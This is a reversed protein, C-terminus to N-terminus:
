HLGHQRLEHTRFEFEDREYRRAPWQGLRKIRDANGRDGKVDASAASLSTWGLLDQVIKLCGNTAHSGVDDVAIAQRHSPDRSNEGALRGGDARGMQTVDEANDFPRARHMTVRNDWIVFDWQRWTHAYVFQRQTAHETLDRIFM